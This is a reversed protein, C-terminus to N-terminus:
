DLTGERNARFVAYIKRIRRLRVGIIQFNIRPLTVQHLNQEVRLAKKKRERLGNKEDRYEARQYM